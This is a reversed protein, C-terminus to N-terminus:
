PGLLRSRPRIGSGYVLMQTLELQESPLHLPAHHGYGLAVQLLRDQLCTPEHTQWSKHWGNAHAALLLIDEPKRERQFTDGFLGGSHHDHLTEVTWKLVYNDAGQEM